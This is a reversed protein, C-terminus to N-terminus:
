ILSCFSLLCLTRALHVGFETRRETFSCLVSVSMGGSTRTWTNRSFRELDARFWFSWSSRAQVTHSRLNASVFSWSAPEPRTKPSILWETFKRKGLRCFRSEDASIWLGEHTRCSTPIKITPRVIFPSTFSGPLSPTTYCSGSACKCYITLPWFTAPHHWSSSRPRERSRSTGKGPCCPIRGPLYENSFLHHAHASSLVVIIRLQHRRSTSTCINSLPNNFLPQQACFAWSHRM